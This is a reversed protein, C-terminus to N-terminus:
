RITFLLDPSSEFPSSEFLPSGSLSTEASAKITREEFQLVGEYEPLPSSRNGKIRSCHESFGLLIHRFRHAFYIFIYRRIFTCNILEFYTQRSSGNVSM